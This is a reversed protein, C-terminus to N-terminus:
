FEGRLSPVTVWTNAALLTKIASKSPLLKLWNAYLLITFWAFWQISTSQIFTSEWQKIVCRCTYQKSHLANHLSNNLTYLITYLTTIFVLKYESRMGEMKREVGLAFFLVFGFTTKGCPDRCVLDQLVAEVTTIPKLTHAAPEEDRSAWLKHPSVRDARFWQLALSCSLHLEIADIAHKGATACCSLLRVVLFSGSETHQTKHHDVRTASTILIFTIKLM